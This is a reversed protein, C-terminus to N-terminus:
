AGRDMPNELCPISSYTAMEEELLVEWVLSLIQRCHLLGPNSGQDDCLVQGLRQTLKGSAIQKVCQSTGTETSSERNTGSEGEGATDM